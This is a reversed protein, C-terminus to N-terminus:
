VLNMGSFREMFSKSTTEVLLGNAWIGYNMYYDDNELALHWIEHLGEKEYPKAKNDLYTFLRYKTETIYLKGVDERTDKEQEETLRDVLISHCGTLILQELLTPYNDKTLKYLRNKSRLDDDPNYIKRHGIMYVPKYGSTFTKILFGKRINQIPVYVETDDILCLIKSGEKFCPFFNPNSPIPDPGASLPPFITSSPAPANSSYSVTINSPSSDLLPTNFYTNMLLVTNTISTYKETPVSYTSTYLCTGNLIRLNSIYGVLNINSNGDSPNSGVSFSKFDWTESNTFTSYSVGNVWLSVLNSSNRTIACNNWTSNMINVNTNYVVGSTGVAICFKGNSNHSAVIEFCGNGWPLNTSLMIPFLGTQVGPASYFWWELTFQGTLTLNSNPTPNFVYQRVSNSSSTINNFFISGPQSM